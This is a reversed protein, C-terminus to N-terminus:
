DESFHQSRNQSCTEIIETLLIHYSKKTTIECNIGIEVIMDIKLTWFIKRSLLNINIPKRAEIM